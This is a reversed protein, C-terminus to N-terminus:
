TVIEKHAHRRVPAFFAIYDAAAGWHFLDFFLFGFSFCFRFGLFLDWDFSKKMTANELAKLGFL